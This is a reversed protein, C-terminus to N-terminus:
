PSIFLLLFVSARAAWRTGHPSGPGEKGPVDGGRHELLSRDAAGPGGRQQQGVVAEQMESDSSAGQGGRAGKRKPRREM